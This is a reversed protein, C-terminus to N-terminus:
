YSGLKSERPSFPTHTSDTKMSGSGMMTWQIVVPQVPPWFTWHFSSLLSHSVACSQFQTHEELVQVHVLPVRLMFVSKSIHSSLLLLVVLAWCSFTWLKLLMFFDPGQVWQECPLSDRTPVSIWVGATGPSVCVWWLHEQKMIGRRARM